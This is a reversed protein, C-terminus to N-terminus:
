RGQTGTPRFKMREMHMVQGNNAANNLQSVVVYAILSTSNHGTTYTHRIARDIEINTERRRSQARSQPGGNLNVFPFM